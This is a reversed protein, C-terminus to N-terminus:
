NGEKLLFIVNKRKEIKKKILDLDEEFVTTFGKPSGLIQTVITNDELDINQSLDSDVIVLNESNNLQIKKIRFIMFKAKIAFDSLLSPVFWLMTLIAITIFYTAIAIKVRSVIKM